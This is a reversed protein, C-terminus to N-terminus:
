DKKILDFEYSGAVASVGSTRAGPVSITLLLKLNDDTRTFSIERESAPSSGALIFKDFNSGAFSWNGTDEFLENSNSTSYTKSASNASLTLEFNQYLDTVTAGDRKVSGGGSIAWTLSGMETLDEIALEEATKQVPPNEKSCGQIISLIFLLSFFRLSGLKM